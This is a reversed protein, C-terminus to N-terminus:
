RRRVRARMEACRPDEGIGLEITPLLALPLAAFGLAAALGGRVGLEIIEPTVSPSAFTGTVLLATPLAGVTFRKAESRVRLDLREDSLRVTGTASILADATELLVARTQLVGRQLVADAVFCRLETRDPLGLGSLLANALRLGSIDVMFASLNGGATSLFLTGDGRAMLEALSRGTSTIQASGNLAGGGRSGVSRMLRGIDVQQLTVNAVAQVTGGQQPTLVVDGEIAGRGVGIRLPRMTAIGGVLELTVRLNDLPTADGQVQAAEYQLHMNAAEFKPINVPANPLVRGSSAGDQRMPGERGPQGGIFGALDRLDVRRSRLNATVDPVAGHPDMTVEGGIDTRGVVGEIGTFRYRAETYNLRGTVRYPPTPPVPVGTLPTLLAMDPGELTLQLTTNALDLPNRVSGEVTAETRGNQLTLVVPWPQGSEGFTIANGTILSATLAEGAYTGRAEATLVVGATPMERTEIIASADGGLGAHIFRATTEAVQVAGIRAPRTGDPAPAAEAPRARALALNSTGDALVRAQIDGGRLEVAPFVLGEGRWWAMVDLRIIVERLRAVPPEAEFGPPNGIVVDRLRVKTVRGLSAGLGGVTVPQGLVTSARREILPIFWSWSFLVALLGFALLPVGALVMWRRLRM